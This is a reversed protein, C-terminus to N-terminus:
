PIESPERSSPDRGGDYGHLAETPAEGLLDGLYRDDQEKHGRHSLRYQAKMAITYFVPVVYLSLLTSVLMGGVVSMGIASRSAAGAGSALALPMLGFITSFATMLIPRFRVKGAELAAKVISLGEERRQNAFEVILISNKTSLGILMILGIQSYVNLEIKALLLAVLAGLLSLPVALLIILPDIYSEFQAALVLFIFALALGFIFFTAQGAEKFELSTGKLATRMDEPVIEDAVQQLATLAEGLSVNPAPSGEITAARFRNYHNIAPPTTSPTVTVVSSLPVLQGTQTRIYFDRIDDPNARFEDEAQVVVEYRRNGRNFNTIEEGGLLIQLTRSIEQVSIGLNAAQARDIAITLEPKNLKLDTDINVLQPLQRAKNAVQASIDALKQLDTGQVVFQVPQSFGQGPLAPPDIPLVFADTIAGLKPYLGGIVAQQSQGPETRESWTKLRVFAFGQNVEGPGQRALAGVTFYSRVEPVESYVQEVQELVRDTYDITVGEPGRVITFIAGRDETPLFGQPVLGFLYATLALSAFFGLVVVLRLSMLRRLTWAYGAQIWDLSAEIWHFIGGTMQGHQKLVRGSLAPALTLAVFSSIVVSGAITLAFETFLRGTTGASFGVPLFVAILVATTAIVAFVVEGVGAFAAPLPKMNKEEIYRVINELVVITDDVVLGTCLTLAFLTLTNISFDLFFMVSFAGILSIPITVAPVITARWDRLFFFIVLIVLFIALYLSSWVEEIALDVFESSDFALRYSMGSPFSKALQEMREKAGRAVDLTNAKSIKVVGLGVAPDGNFRVFSRYSEAGIEARGVDKLRIQTGNERRAIVLNEYEPPTQLRGLTRVSFESSEGEVIGSPIEVNERRLAQEIDLVTLQRAALKKPDIWLRMAYKREGGIIVSSVGSVTELADVVFRDAYDSLELTSFSSDPSYLAFWMIPSADGSQKSVIPSEVEDPLNGRARDVRSRVDQAAIDIDRDLDFQVTISSVSERSVSSLTKIGEVGNIEAELTETVDTEVVQPNAGPYVTTVNVVPPDITPYEQVPLRTYGVLGILVVLLSCVSAFVPRKIFFNTFM